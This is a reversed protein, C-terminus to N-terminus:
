KYDRIAKEYFGFWIPKRFLFSTIWEYFRNPDTCNSVLIWKILISYLNWHFWFFWKKRWFFIVLSICDHFMVILQFISTCFFGNSCFFVFSSWDFHQSIEFYQQKWIEGIVDQWFGCGVVLGFLDVCYLNFYERTRRFFVVLFIGHLHRNCACYDCKLTLCWWATFCYM